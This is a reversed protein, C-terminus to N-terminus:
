RDQGVVDGLVGCVLIAWAIGLAPIAWDQNAM